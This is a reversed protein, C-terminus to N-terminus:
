PVEEERACGTDAYLAVKGEAALAPFYLLSGVFHGNPPPLLMPPHMTGHSPRTLLESGSRAYSIDLRGVGTGREWWLRDAPTYREATGDSLVTLTSPPNGFPAWTWEQRVLPGTAEAAVQIDTFLAPLGFRDHLYSAVQTDNVLLVNLVLGAAGNGACSAPVSANSHADWVIRLPGRELSGVRVRRCDYGSVVSGALLQGPGTPEWGPPARGPAVAQPFTASPGSFGTCETLELLNPPWAPSAPAQPAHDHSMCGSLVPLLLAM